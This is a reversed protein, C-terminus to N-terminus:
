GTRRLAVHTVICHPLLALLILTGLALLAHLTLKPTLHTLVRSQGLAARGPL